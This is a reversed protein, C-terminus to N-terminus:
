LNPPRPNPDGYTGNLTPNLTDGHDYMKSACCRGYVMYEPYGARWASTHAPMDFEPVVMVGHLQAYRVLEGIDQHTYHRPNGEQDRFAGQTLKPWKKSELPFSQDDTFHIHLVNLKSAAMAEVIHKIFSVPYYHRATDIMLGRWAFRPSDHITLRAPVALYPRARPGYNDALQAFTELGRLTGYPTAAHLTASGNAIILGACVVFHFQIL